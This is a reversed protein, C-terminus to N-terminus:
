RIAGAPPVSPAKRRQDTSSAKFHEDRCVRHTQPLTRKPIERLLRQLEPNRLAEGNVRSYAAIRENDRNYVGSDQAFEGELMLVLPDDGKNTHMRRRTQIQGRDRTAQGSTVERFNGATLNSWVRFREYDPTQPNAKSDETVLLYHGNTHRYVSLQNQPESNAELFHFARPTRSSRSIGSLIQQMSSPNTVPAFAVSHTGCGYRIQGQSSSLTAGNFLTETNQDTQFCERESCIFQCPTEARARQQPRSPFNTRNLKAEPRFCFGSILYRKEGSPLVEEFIKTGDAEASLGLQLSRLVQSPNLDTAVQAFVGHCFLLILILVHQLKM